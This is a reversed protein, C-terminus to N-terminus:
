SLRSTSTMGCKLLMVEVEKQIRLVYIKKTESYRDLIEKIQHPYKKPFKLVWRIFQFFKWNIQEPM